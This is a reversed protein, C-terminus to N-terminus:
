LHGLVRGGGWVCVYVCVYVVGEGEKKCVGVGGGGLRERGEEAVAM